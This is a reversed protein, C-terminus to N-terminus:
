FRGRIGFGISVRDHHPREVIVEGGEWHGERVCVRECRTEYHGPTVLVQRDDNQYHAPVLVRREVTEYGDPRVCVRERAFIRRGHEYRVVDRFEFV